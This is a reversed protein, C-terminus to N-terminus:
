LVASLLLFIEAPSKLSRRLDCWVRATNDHLLTVLARVAYTAM